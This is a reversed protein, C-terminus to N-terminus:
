TIFEAVNVFIWQESLHSYKFLIHKSLTFIVMHEHPKENSILALYFVWFLFLHRHNHIFNHLDGSGGGGSNLVKLITSLRLLSCIAKYGIFNM